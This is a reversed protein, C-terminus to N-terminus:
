MRAGARGALALGIKELISRLRESWRGHRRTVGPIQEVFTRKPCDTDVCVFRRARVVLVTSRWREHRVM